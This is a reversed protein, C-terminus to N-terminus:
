SVNKILKRLKFANRLREILAFDFHHKRVAPISRSYDPFPVEYSTQYHFANSAFANM